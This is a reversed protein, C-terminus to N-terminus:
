ETTRTRFNPGWFAAARRHLDGISSRFGILPHQPVMGQDTVKLERVLQARGARTSQDDRHEATEWM